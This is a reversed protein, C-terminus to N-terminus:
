EFVKRYSAFDKRCGTVLSLIPNAVWKGYFPQHIGGGKENEKICTKKFYRKMWTGHGLDIVM